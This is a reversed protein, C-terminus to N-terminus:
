KFNFFFTSKVFSTVLKFFIHATLQTNQAFLFFFTVHSKEESSSKKTDSSKLITLLRM